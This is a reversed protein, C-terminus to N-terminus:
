QCQLMLCHKWQVQLMLFQALCMIRTIEYQHYPEYHLAYGMLDYVGTALLVNHLSNMTGYHHLTHECPIHQSWQDKKEGEKKIM